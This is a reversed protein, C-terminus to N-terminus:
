FDPELTFAIAAGAVLGGLFPSATTTPTIGGQIALEAESLENLYSESDFFLESGTPNLDFITIRAM